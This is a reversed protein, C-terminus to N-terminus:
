CLNKPIKHPINCIPMEMCADTCKEMTFSHNEDNEKKLQQEIVTTGIKGGKSEKAWGM